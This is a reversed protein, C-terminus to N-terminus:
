GDRKRAGHRIDVIIVESQAEAVTYFVLYPYPNAVLYRVGSQPAPTGIHPFRELDRIVKDLRRKVNAAGTGSRNGIYDLIASYQSLASPTFRVRM